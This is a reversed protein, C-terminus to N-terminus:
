SLEGIPANQLWLQHIFSYFKESVSVKYPCPNLSRAHDPRLTRMSEAVRERVRGLGPDPVERRGDKWVCSDLRVVSLPTVWARKSELFPHRCLVKEGVAPEPEGPLQLLDLIATGGRGYLRFAEQEGPLSVKAVEQSLKMCPVGAVCALKYVCGLAPQRQCTVLHTGIGFCDISHGQDNLSLITEENIDNSATIELAAFFPLELQDAVTVLLERVRSSLYALDGSDIRLGAPRYGFTVLALGVACFNLVGSKLVDYTDILAVFSSPFAAAYYVFAELEGNHAEAELVGLTAAVSARHGRCVEGWLEARQGAAASPGPALSPGPARGSSPFSSVFSHAMTGAVPIGFLKGALMNSTGDFGGAFSYRSASLGGDPGQARRLGFEYLKARPGAAIRFRAANTTVLSAYNVLNLFVTELLQVLVLPGAVMLLPVRPFCVSGEPLARVTLGATGLGALYSWFEEECGPLVTRLYALDSSSYSFSELFALCESLGAFITFEGNFPNKRFFLHFTAEEQTRGARWYAYAMTLQYLDTLLPQVAGKERGAM